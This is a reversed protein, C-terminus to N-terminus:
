LSVDIDFIDTLEEAFASQEKQALTLLENPDDVLQVSLSEIKYKYIRIAAWASLLGLSFIRAIWNSVVIWAFRWQNADTDFSNKGIGVHKWTTIFLRAQIIPFLTLMVVYFALVAFVGATASNMASAGKILFLGLVVGAGLFVLVPLLIAAYYHKLTATLKFDLQGLHLNNFQYRKYLLIVYPALLGASLVSALGGLFYILYIRGTSGSFYLRSNAYKSNRANFRFTARLLWPIILMLAFFAWGAYKPSYNALAFYGVYFLSAIIRGLLIKTPVGTFDFAREALSTHGYFYRLRRVKAWPAYFGATIITFFLNSIWIGFYEGADGSFRFRSGSKLPTQIVATSSQSNASLPVYEPFHIERDQDENQM